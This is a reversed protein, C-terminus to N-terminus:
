GKLAGAHWAVHDPVFTQVFFYAHDYGPQIRLTVAQGAEGCAAEFEAVKMAGIRYFEDADGQDILIPRTRHGARVLELADYDRWATEDDGLYASFARRGMDIGSPHCIPAMVSVSRFTEPNRLAIVLAGHGGMSHGMLAQRDPDVPLNAAVVRPLEEVVYDYMRYHPAWPDETANVYFGAGMGLDWAEDDAVGPGRPSTDPAVVIVGHEAAHRQAAAKVTFNEETCTLGSLYYLVPCRGTKAQPPLYASFRMTCGTTEAPHAFVHQMGGFCKSASIPELTM